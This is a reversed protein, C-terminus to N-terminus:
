FNMGVAAGLARRAGRDCQVERGEEVEKRGQPTAVTSHPVRAVYM